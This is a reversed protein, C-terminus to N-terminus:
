MIKKKYLWLNIMALAFIIINIGYRPNRKFKLVIILSKTNFKCLHITYM